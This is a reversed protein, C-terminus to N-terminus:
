KEKAYTPVAKNGFEKMIKDQYNIRQHQIGMLVRVFTERVKRLEKMTIPCNDFQGDDIRQKFLKDILEEMQAMTPSKLARVASEAADALMSIATERTRPKPGAYRFQAKDVNEPGEEQVAKQYFYGCMLTGHHETMFDLLQDPLGAKKGMEISDKPHQTIVRKSLRPTLRDHPNDSGFYAQNEIFYLPRRMKGIDHYLCGVRTLLPDAGIAEAAAESLSAMMLSHHFTGPAEFQLRKLLPQDHNGLELLKFPTLLQFGWELFPLLGLTLIGSIFGGVIAGTAQAILDQWHWNSGGPHGLLFSAVVACLTVGTGILVAVLVENRSKFAKANGLWASGAVSGLWLAAIATTSLKLSIAAVLTTLTVVILALWPHTLIAICYALAPLPFAVQPLWSLFQTQLKLVGLSAVILSALMWIHQTRWYRGQYLFRLGLGLLIIILSSYIAVAALGAWHISEVAIGAETLARKNLATLPDGPEILKDGPRYTVIVPKVKSAAKLRALKTQTEDEVLNPTLVNEVVQKVLSLELEPDLITKPLAKKILEDRNNIYSEMSLGPTLITNLTVESASRLRQWIVPQILQSAQQPSLQKLWDPLAKQSALGLERALLKREVAQRNRLERSYSETPASAKAQDASLASTGTNALRQLSEKVHELKQRMADKMNTNLEEPDKYIPAVTSKAQQRKLSTSQEDTVQILQKAVVTTTAVGDRAVKVVNLFSAGLICTIAVLAVLAALTAQGETQKLFRSTNQKFQLWWSVEQEPVETLELAQRLNDAHKTVPKQSAM